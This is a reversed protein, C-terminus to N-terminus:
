RAPPRAALRAALLERLRDDMVVVFTTGDPREFRIAVGTRGAPKLHAAGLLFDVVEVAKDDLHPQGLAIPTM